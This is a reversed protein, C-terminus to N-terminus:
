SLVGALDEIFMKEPNQQYRKLYGRIISIEEKKSSRRPGAVNDILHKIECSLQFQCMLLLNFCHLRFKSKVHHDNNTDGKLETFFPHEVIEVM